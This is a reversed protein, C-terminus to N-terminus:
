RQTIYAITLSVKKCSLLSAVDPLIGAICSDELGISINLHIESPKFGSKIQSLSAAKAM